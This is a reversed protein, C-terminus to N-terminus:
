SNCSYGQLEKNTREVRLSASEDFYDDEVFRCSSMTTIVVYGVLGALFCKIINNRKM